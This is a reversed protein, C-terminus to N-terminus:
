NAGDLRFPHTLKQGIMKPMGADSWDDVVSLIVYLQKEAKSVLVRLCGMGTKACCRRGVSRRKDKNPQKQNLSHTATHISDGEFPAENTQVRQGQRGSM